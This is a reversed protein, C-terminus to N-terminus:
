QLIQFIMFNQGLLPPPHINKNNESVFPERFFPSIDSFNDKGM